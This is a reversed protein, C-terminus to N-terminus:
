VEEKRKGRQYGYILKRYRHSQKQKKKEGWGCGRCISTGLGPISNLSCSPSICCTHCHRIKLGSQQAPFSVWAEAAIQTATTLDKIWQAM